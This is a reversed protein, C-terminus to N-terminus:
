TRVSRVALYINGSSDGARVAVRFTGRRPFRHILPPLPATSRWPRAARARSRFDRGNYRWDAEIWQFRAHSRLRVEVRRGDRTIHLARALRRTSPRDELLRFREGPCELLLRRYTVACALRSADCGLWRRGARAAAVLTTGSGCFFDAVLDGPRSSARVIRELLALPKQTPYGTREGHLRAVVPFFWWDEPVKGRALDPVKGFGARRSGAFTKWTSPDYPVRVADANFTYRASKTYVLVTDHKRSFASRIPSPGHYVWAIENLLREPGFIEDLLVRVYPATHWDLHVYLTGTTALLRHIMELRPKLMDLYDALGRWRDDFGRRTRWTAPRRSDEGAGVRAPYAKGSLFPPDVVILDVRRELEPLLAAMVALNEGRILRNRASGGGPGVTATVYLSAPAPTRPRQGEWTLRVPSSRRAM